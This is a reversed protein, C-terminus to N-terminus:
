VAAKQCKYYGQDKTEGDTFTTKVFNKELVIFGNELLLREFDADSYEVFHFKNIPSPNTSPVIPTTIILYGDEKLLQRLKKLFKPAGEPKMHEITEVSFVNDFKTEYSYINEIFITKENKYHERAYKIAEPDIDYGVAHDVFNTLFNTGYGSGCASDLWIQNKGTDGLMKVCEFYREFHRVFPDFPVTLDRPTFREDAIQIKNMQMRIYDEKYDVDVKHQKLKYFITDENFMLDHLSEVIDAKYCGVFLSMRVCQPYDQRRYFLHDVIPTAKDEDKEYFCLYPHEEVEECCILSREIRSNFHTCITEVDEWTREPYTLYLLVITEDCAINKTEIFHHVVDKMSTEDRALHAPRDICNVKLELARQKITSDDTSVYVRHLHEEPIIGVTYDLLKRNKFPLGKSGKRAPILFSCEDWNM